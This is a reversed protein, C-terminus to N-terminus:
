KSSINVREIKNLAATEVLLAPVVSVTIIDIIADEAKYISIKLYEKKVTAGDWLAV